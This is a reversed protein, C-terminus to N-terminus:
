HKRRYCESCGLVHVHTKDPRQFARAIVISDPALEKKCVPCIRKVKKNPPYCHPCGYIEMMSDPKGPFLVSKVREKKTLGSGCIPCTTHFVPPEANERSQSDASQKRTLLFLLIVVLTGTFIPVIITFINYM